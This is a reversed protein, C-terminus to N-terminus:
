GWSLTSEPPGFPWAPLTEVRQAPVIAVPVPANLLVDHAVSGLQLLDKLIGRDARAVVLLQATQAAEVLEPITPGEILTTAVDSEPHRGRIGTAAGQLVTEAADRIAEWPYDVFHLPSPYAPGAAWVHVLAIAAARLMAEDETFAVAAEAPDDDGVGLLVPGYHPTWTRPVVM